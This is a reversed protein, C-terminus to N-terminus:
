IEDDNAVSKKNRTRPCTRIQIPVSFINGTRFSIGADYRIEKFNFFKTVLFFVFFYKLESVTNNKGGNSKKIIRWILTKFINEVLLSLLLCTKTDAIM